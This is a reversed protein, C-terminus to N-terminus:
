KCRTFMQMVIFGKYPRTSNKCLMRAENLPHFTPHEMLSLSNLIENENILTDGIGLKQDYNLGHESSLIILKRKPEETTSMRKTNSQNM